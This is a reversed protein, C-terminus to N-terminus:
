PLFLSVRDSRVRLERQLEPAPAVEVLATLQQRVAAILEGQVAAPRKAQLEQILLGVAQAILEDDELIVAAWLIHRGEPNIKPDNSWCPRPQQLIGGKKIMAATLRQRLPIVPPLTGSELSNLMERFM